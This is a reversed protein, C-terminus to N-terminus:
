AQSETQDRLATALCVTGGYSHGVPHVVSNTRQIVAEVVDIEREISLDDPTRREETDGFGLLSTTVREFAIEWCPSWVV